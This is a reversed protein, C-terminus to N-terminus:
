PSVEPPSVFRYSQSTVLAVVLERFRYGSSAFREHMADLAPREPPDDLRGMAHRFLQKVMCRSVREDTALHDALARANALPVGDLDGSADIPYGNDTTRFAGIADFSEFLFGPPDIFSHCGACSPNSRHQELQERLTKPDGPTPEIDTNVDPPPPPVESCLVRERLYKGRLTPSTTAEHANMTLFAASTLLGARPGDAPLEVPVFAVATAGSAEVGYLAALEVNVFTRRTSFLERMDADRRFVLDFALLKAETRMAEALAPSFSPYLTADRSMGDLKGLDLYQAFFEQISERARPSDLLRRAAAEIGGGTTLEGREAADLLADDPPANWLLFSLRSAMEFDTYRLRPPNDPDPEGLEVRYVFSPAQLMGAVATRLGTWADGGSLDTSIKVWREIEGADLTRRLASRGFSRLFGAVCADGPAAPECGVLAARREPDDFVIFSVRDAAEEIQQVGLESLPDTTAGISTFLFPNTDPQVPTEPLAKGFLDILASRYQKATLRPLVPEGLAVEEPQGAPPDGLIGVCGGALALGVPLYLSRLSRARASSSRQLM